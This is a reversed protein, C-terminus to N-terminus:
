LIEIMFLISVFPGCPCSVHKIRWATGVPGLSSSYPGRPLPLLKTFLHQQLCVECPLAAALWTLFHLVM